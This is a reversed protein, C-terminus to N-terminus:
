RGGKIVDKGAYTEFHEQAESLSRQAQWESKESSYGDVGTYAVDGVEEITRLVGRITRKAQDVTIRNPLGVKSGEMAVYLAREKLQNLSGSGISDVNPMEKVLELTDIHAYLQKRRHDTLLEGRLWDIFDNRSQPNLCIDDCIRDVILLKGLEEYSLIALACASSFSGSGFLICADRFLRLANRFCGIKLEALVSDNVRSM